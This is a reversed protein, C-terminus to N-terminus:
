DVIELEEEFFHDSQWTLFRFLSWRFSFKVWWGAPKFTDPDSGHSIIIGEENYLCFAHKGIVKVRVGPKFTYNDIPSLNRYSM